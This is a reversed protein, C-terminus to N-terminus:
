ARSSGAGGRAAPQVQVRGAHVRRPHLDQRRRELAAGVCGGGAFFADADIAQVQTSRRSRAPRSGAEVHHRRRAHALITGFDGSPTARAGAFALPTSRTARRCRTAGRGARRASRVGAAGAGQAGALALTLLVAALAAGRHSRSM